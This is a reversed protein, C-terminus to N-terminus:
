SLKVTIRFPTMLENKKEGQFINKKKRRPIDPRKKEGKFILGKKERWQIYPRKLRVNEINQLM